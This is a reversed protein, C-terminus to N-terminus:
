LRVELSPIIGHPWFYIGDFSNLMTGYKSFMPSGLRKWYSLSMVFDMTGEDIMTCKITNNMSQVHVPLAVHYPFIPHFENTEFKIVRSPHSDVVGLSSLLYKRQSPFTQLVELAFMVCPTQGLDEVISYHGLHKLVEKTIHPIVKPKDIHLPIELPTPDKGM